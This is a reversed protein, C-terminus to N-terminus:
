ATPSGGWGLRDAIEAALIVFIGAQFAGLLHHLMYRLNYGGGSPVKGLLYGVVDFPLVIVFLGSGSYLVPTVLVDWTSVGIGLLIIATGILRGLTVINLKNGMDTM